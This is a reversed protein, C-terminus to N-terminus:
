PTSADARSVAIRTSSRHPQVEVGGGHHLQDLPLRFRGCKSAEQTPMSGVLEDRAHEGSRLNDSGDQRTPITRDFLRTSLEGPEILDDQGCLQKVASCGQRRGSWQSAKIGNMQGRRGLECQWWALV